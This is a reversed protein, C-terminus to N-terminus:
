HGTAPRPQAVCPGRFGQVALGGDVALTQGTIYSAVPLCLFAVAAATDRPAGLRGLPTAAKVADLQSPDNRVAEELLPTLAMWPAVTNVRIGLPAWECALSASMHTLAAKTMAYVVGTGSSRLGALSSVNVVSPSESQQLLHKCGATLFFAATQNTSVM